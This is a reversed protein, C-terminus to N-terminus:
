TILRALIISGLGFVVAIFLPPIADTQYCIAKDQNSISVNNCDLGDSGRVGNGNIVDSLAPALALGLLFFIIGIMFFYFAAMGKKNM